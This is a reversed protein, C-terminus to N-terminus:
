INESFKNMRHDSKGLRRFSGSGKSEFPEMRYKEPSVFHGTGLESEVFLNYVIPIMWERRSEVPLMSMIMLANSSGWPVCVPGTFGGVGFVAIQSRIVM